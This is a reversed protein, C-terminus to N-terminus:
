QGQPLPLGRDKSQHSLGRRKPRWRARAGLRPDLLGTSRVSALRDNAYRDGAIAVHFLWLRKALEESSECRALRGGLKASHSRRYTQVIKSALHHRAPGYQRRAAKARRVRDATAYRRLTRVVRTDGEASVSATVRGRRRVRLYAFADIKLRQNEAPYLKAKRPVHTPLDTRREAARALAPAKASATLNSSM